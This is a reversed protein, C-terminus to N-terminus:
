EYRPKAFINGNVPVGLAFGLANAISIGVRIGTFSGPGPNVSVEEIDSVLLEHEKLLKDILLLVNQSGASKKELVIEDKVGDIELGVSVKTNDTTDITIRAM